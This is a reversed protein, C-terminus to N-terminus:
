RFWHFTKAELNEDFHATIVFGENKKASKRDLIGIGSKNANFYASINISVRLKEYEEKMSQPFPSVDSDLLSFLIKLVHTKGTGNEGIFVNIGSSFDMEAKSFCTFNELKLQKIKNDFNETM